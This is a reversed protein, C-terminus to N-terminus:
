GLAEKMAEATWENLESLVHSYTDLTIRISKHALLAQVIKPHVGKSLLIHRM